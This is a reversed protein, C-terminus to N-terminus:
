SVREFEYAVSKIYLDFFSGPSDARKFEEFVYDPVGFYHYRTGSKFDIILLGQSSDYAITAICSSEVQQKEM